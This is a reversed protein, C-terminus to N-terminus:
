TKRPFHTEVREVYRLLIDAAQALVEQDARPCESDLALTTLNDATARLKAVLIVAEAATM